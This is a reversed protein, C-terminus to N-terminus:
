YIRSVLGKDSMYNAFMKELSLAQRKMKETDESFQTKLNSLIWIIM